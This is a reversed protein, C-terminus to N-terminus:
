THSNHENLADEARVRSYFPGNLAATKDAFYWGIPRNDETPGALYYIEQGDVKWWSDHYYRLPPKNEKM